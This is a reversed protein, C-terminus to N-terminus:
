RGMPAGIPAGHQFALLQGPLMETWAENDTLPTTAIV